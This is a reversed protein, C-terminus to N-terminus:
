MWFLSKGLHCIDNRCGGLGGQGHDAAVIFERDVADITHAAIVSVM